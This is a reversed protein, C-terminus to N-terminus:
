TVNEFMEEDEDDDDVGSQTPEMDSVVEGEAKPAIEDKVHDGAAGSRKFQSQLEWKGVFDGSKHLVAITQLTERLWAEPQPIRAKIERLGWFRYEGFLGILGDILENQPMRAARNDKAAAARAAM